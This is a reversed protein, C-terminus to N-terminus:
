QYTVFFACIVSLFAMITTMIVVPLQSNTATVLPGILISIVIQGLFTMAFLIGMDTGQGRIPGNQPHTFQEDSHYNALIDYPITTITVFILSFSSCLVLTLIQYDVFFAMSGVCIGFILPPGIYLAKTSFCSRIKLFLLSLVATSFGFGCLGWSALRTGEQYLQFATSNIPATPVGHLVEQAFYDTFYLVITTFSAWGFFHTVCLWRMCTPMRFISTIRERLTPVAEDEPPSLGERDVETTYKKMTQMGVEDEKEDERKIVLPEEAISTITLIGCVIYVLVTLLFILEYNSKIVVGLPTNVWNIGAVLYACGCGLGGIVTRMLLGRTVEDVDCVDLLYARSTSETLFACLDVLLIGLLAVTIGLGDNSIYQVNLYGACGVIVLLNLVFIFPRRRGWRSTCNDSLSGILPGLVFGCIPGLVWCLGQLVTPLGLQLVIPTGLATECSFAFELAFQQSGNRLLQCFSRKPRQNRRSPSESLILRDRENKNDDRQIGSEIGASGDITM